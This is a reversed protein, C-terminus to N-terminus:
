EGYVRYALEYMAVVVPDSKNGDQRCVSRSDGSYGTLRGPVNMARRRLVASDIAHSCDCSYKWAMALGKARPVVGGWGYSGSSAWKTAEASSASRCTCRPVTVNAMCQRAHPFEAALDSDRTDTRGEGAALM